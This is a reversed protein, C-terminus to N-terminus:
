AEIVSAMRDAAALVAAERVTRACFVRHQHLKVHVETWAEDLVIESIGFPQVASRSHLSWSPGLSRASITWATHAGNVPLTWSHEM